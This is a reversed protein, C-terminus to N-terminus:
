SQSGYYTENQRKGNVRPKMAQLAQFNDVRNRRAFDEWVNGAGLLAKYQSEVEETIPRFLKSSCGRAVIEYHHDDTVQSRTNRTRSSGEAVKITDQKRGTIAFQLVISITPMSADPVTISRDIKCHSLGKRNKIQLNIASTTKPSIPTELSGMHIPIVADISEQGEKAQLAMGRLLATALAPASLMQSDDALAFHSFFVFSNSFAESLTEVGEKRTLCRASLIKQHHSPHFLACLFVLVPIPRHYSPVNPQHELTGCYNELAMDHAATVLLRGILEGREGRALLGKELAQSLQEPGEIAIGRCGGLSLYRGAAEALIPESPAGTHMYGRHKPISFAVRMHSEVLKSQVWYPHSEDVTGKKNATTEKEHFIIEKEDFAIGVRIGLAALISNAKQDPREDASLKAMAFRFIDKESKVQYITHWLARGFMVMVDVDYARKLTIGPSKFEQVVLSEHIDFPLETFPTILQSGTVTRASRIFPAPPALDKLSSNTSLFIFFVRYDILESLVNGLNHFQNREHEKSPNKITQTLWHAEDFYVFCANTNTNDLTSRVRNVLKSCSKQLYGELINRGLSGSTSIERTAADVVKDYFERRNQGVGLVTQGDGLYNAWELALKEGRLKKFRTKLLELTQAFLQWLFIIYHVQQTTDDNDLREEFFLRIRKDPPPYAHKQEGGHERINFPITFVTKGAEEVTRSKGTGSSQVISISWNYPTNAATTHLYAKREDNLTGILIQATKGIYPGRFVLHLDLATSNQSDSFGGSSSPTMGQAQNVVHELVRPLMAHHKLLSAFDNNNYAEELATYLSQESKGLHEQCTAVDIQWSPLFKSVVICLLHAHDYLKPPFRFVLSAERSEQIASLVAHNFKAADFRKNDNPKNSGLQSGEYGADIDMPSDM